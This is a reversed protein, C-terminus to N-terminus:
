THKCSCLHHLEQKAALFCRSYNPLTARFDAVVTPGIENRRHQYDYATTPMDVLIEVPLSDRFIFHIVTGGRNFGEGDSGSANSDGERSSRSPRHSSHSADRSYVRRTDLQLTDSYPSPPFTATIVTDSGICLPFTATIGTDSGICICVYM